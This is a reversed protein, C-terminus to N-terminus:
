LKIANIFIWNLELLNILSKSYYMLFTFMLSFSFNRMPDCFFHLCRLYVFVVSLNYKSNDSSVSPVSSCYSYLFFIVVFRINDALLVFILQIGLLSIPPFHTIM